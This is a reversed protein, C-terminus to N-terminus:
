RKCRIYKYVICYEQANLVLQALTMCGDSKPLFGSSVALILILLWLLFRPWGVILLEVRRWRSFVGVLDVLAVPVVIARSLTTAAAAATAAATSAVSVPSEVLVLYLILRSASSCCLVSWKFPKDRTRLCVCFFFVFVLYQIRASYVCSNRHQLWSIKFSVFRFHHTNWAIKM